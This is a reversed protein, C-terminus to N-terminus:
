TRLFQRAAARLGSGPEGGSQLALRARDALVVRAPELGPPAFEAGPADLWDNWRGVDVSGVRVDVGAILPFGARIATSVGRRDEELDYGSCGLLLVGSPYLGQARCTAAADVAAALAEADGGNITGLHVARVGAAQLRDVGLDHLQSVSLTVRLQQTRTSTVRHRALASFLSMFFPTDPEELGAVSRFDLWDIGLLACSRLDALLDAPEIPDGQMDQLFVSSVAPLRRQARGRAALRSIPGGNTRPQPPWMGDASCDYVAYDLLKRELPDRLQLDPHQGALAEALAVGSGAAGLVDLARCLGGPSLQPLLGDLEPIRCAGDAWLDVLPGTGVLVSSGTQRLARAAELSGELSAPHLWLLCLDPQVLKSISRLGRNADDGQRADHVVVRHRTALKVAGALRLLDAPLSRRAQRPIEFRYTSSM